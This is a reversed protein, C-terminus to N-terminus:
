GVGALQDAHEPLAYYVTGNVRRHLLSGSSLRAQLAERVILRKGRQVLGQDDLEELPRVATRETRRKEERTRRQYRLDKDARRWAPGPPVLPMGVALLEDLTQPGKRLQALCARTYSRNARVM